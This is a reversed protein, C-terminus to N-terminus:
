LMKTQAGFTRLIPKEGALLLYILITAAPIITFVAVCYLCVKFDHRMGGPAQEEEVDEDAVICQASGDDGGLNTWFLVRLTNSMQSTIERRMDCAFLCEITMSVIPRTEVCLACHMGTCVEEEANEADVDTVKLM